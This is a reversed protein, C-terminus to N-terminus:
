RYSGSHTLSHTLVHTPSHPLVEEPCEQLKL